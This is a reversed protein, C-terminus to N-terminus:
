NINSLKILSDVEDGYSAGAPYAGQYHAVSSPNIDSSLDKHYFIRIDDYFWPSSVQWNKKRKSSLYHGALVDVKGADMWMLARKWPLSGLLEVKVDHEKAITQVLKIAIGHIQANSENAKFAIPYWDHASAVRLTDCHNSANGISCFLMLVLFLGNRYVVAM